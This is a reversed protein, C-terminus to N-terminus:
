IISERKFDILDPDLEELKDEFEEWGYVKIFEAERLTIPILWAMVITKKDDVLFADFSNPFYGPITVYLAELTSDEFIPGYPGIVDGRLYATGYTLAMQSVQDLLASINLDGVDAYSIFILEQWTHKGSVSSTLPVKNLGLTSFTCTGPFPGKSYKVIQVPLREGKDDTTWGYEITGLHNELFQLFKDM